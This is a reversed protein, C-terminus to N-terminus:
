PAIVLYTVVSSSGGTDEVTFGGAHQRDTVVITAPDVFVTGPLTLPDPVSVSVMVLADSTINPCKVDVIGSDLTALGSCIAAGSTIATALRPAASASAALSALLVASLVQYKV